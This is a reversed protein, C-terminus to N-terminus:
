DIQINLFQDIMEAEGATVLARRVVHFDQLEPSTLVDNLDTALGQDIQYKLMELATIVGFTRGRVNRGPTYHSGNPAGFAIQTWVRRARTSLSELSSLAPHGALIRRAHTYFKERQLKIVLGFAVIQENQPIEAARRGHGLENTCPDEVTPRCREATWNQGYGEPLTLSGQQIYAGLFDLGGGHYTHITARSLSFITSGAERYAIALILGVDMEPDVTQLAQLQEFLRNTTQTQQQETGQVLRRAMNEVLLMRQRVFDIRRYHGNQQVLWGGRATRENFPIGM